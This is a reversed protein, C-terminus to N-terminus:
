STECGCHLFASGASPPKAITPILPPCGNLELLHTPSCSFHACRLLPWAAVARLDLSRRKWLMRAGAAALLWIVATVVIRVHVVQEHGPTGGLRNVVSASAAAELGTDRLPPHGVLYPSAPYALWIALMLGLLVPLGPAWSRGLM